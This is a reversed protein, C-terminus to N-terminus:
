LTIIECGGCAHVLCKQLQYLFLIEGVNRYLFDAFFGADVARCEIQVVFRHSVKEFFAYPVDYVPEHLEHWIVRCVKQFLQVFAWEFLQVKDRRFIQHRIQRVYLLVSSDETCAYLM